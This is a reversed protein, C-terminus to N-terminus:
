QCVGGSGANYIAQVQASTLAANYVAVDNILGTFPRNNNVQQGIALWDSSPYSITGNWPASWVLVVPQAVGNFYINPAGNADRTATILTWQNLPVQTTTDAEHWASGDGIQFTIHGVPIGASSNPNVRGDFFIATGGYVGDEQSGVIMGLAGSGYDTPLITPYIWAQLTIHNQIQLNTPVPQGILVYQDSGNLSFADGVEGLAYTVGNELTGNYGNPGVDNANDNGPWLSVLSAPQALCAPAGTVTASCSANTGGYQGNCSWAWSYNGGSLPETIASATGASCLNASPAASFSGGNASGCAGNVAATTGTTFTTEVGYQSEYNGAIDYLYWNNPWYVIDYITSEALPTTPTLTVVTVGGVTSIALTTPVTTQTNHTRLYIQSSTILVPNMLESFTVTLPANVAVGTANNAPTAATATPNTWDFSSGTTFSSTTTGSAPNGNLDTVGAWNFTYTTNLQLAWPLQVDAIFNGDEPYVAIPEASGGAPTFTVNAMSDSSVPKNFLLMLSTNNWPGGITNLPVNTAGSPPNAYVLSPGVAVPGNGTYFGASNNQQGNGTLDIAGNCYYIYQSNSFLPTTPTMTVAMLDSAWTYTVPINGSNVYSYIYTNSPTVSAPDMPESYLCTFSANTAVGSQWSSFDLTATPATYDPLAATTFSASASTFTNGGYDLLGSASVTIPSSPPLPNVPSFNAEVVNSSSYTYSWTGPIPNGGTTITVNTSNITTLDVPKSFVLRIYANTGVNVSGNPPGIKVTGPTTDPGTATTFYTTWCSSQAAVGNTGKVNANACFGYFTSANWFSGGTPAIRVVNTTGPALGVTFTPTSPGSNLYVNGSLTTANIPLSYEIDIEGNTPINGNETCCPPSVAIIQPSATAANVTPATYFYGSNGNFADGNVDLVSGSLFWQVTAGNPFQTTPTFQIEYGSAVAQVTGAFVAGNVTVTLQGPLTAADVQRNMYLTLLTDTPVGTANNGPAVSQVSGNGTAPNTGTTFTSTFTTALANGSPDTIGGAPLDITYAANTYLVGSNFTMTRNDASMSISGRDQLGQGAFLLANNSNNYVSYPNIAKNFTVSVPVDPRVNTAGNAPNVSLVTLPTGDPTDGTTTFNLLQIWCGGGNLEDGAVDYPGNCAGVYITANPPYPSSPTFTVANGNVAYTGALGYNSNWGNMVLLTSTNVTAPNLIHSFTLTIPSLNNTVNAGNVISTSTLTLGGTAAVTGTTFTTNSPTVVNGNADTFGSVNVTYTIGASLASTPTFILTQNNSQSVTGAVPTSGNLLQISNQTWSTPDIIASATVVVQANLPIGTAGNLPSITVTPGTTDTGGNTWFYITVGNGNNGDQDQFGCCAQFYYHTSPLLPVQPTMTVEQGNASETVTLPIWQGTDYLYMRFTSNNVTIPNLPKNFVLKPTVNTGVTANNPPDSNIATASTIDYNPGTTFTNTVTAVANGAPDKVGAVTMLYSTNPALPVAPILQLVTNGNGLNPSTTVTSGGTSLTVGSLTNPDIPGSFQAEIIANTGLGTAGNLPNFNIVTPASSASTFEAYFTIEIGSVQNGALDTGTNVYFYYERGAALPSSPVLYAVSQISNWFLTAPVRVGLLSDYIYIDGNNGTSFTTVDMSESFQITISSNVPISENSTVSTWVVTPATFDPGPGTTFSSSFNIPNGVLDLVGNLTMVLSTNAPLPANPVFEVRTDNSNFWFGGALPTGGNTVQFTNSNVSVPDITKSIVVGPTVNVGVGSAGSYPVASTVTPLTADAATGTYFYTVWTTNAFPVSTSSQLGTTLYVYIYHNAGFNASPVIRVENSQPMTYTGAVHLGTSSDYLYINTSNVTSANLPTNFQLDVFTNLAVTAGYAPSAVQVAPTLTSTSAAVYFYGSTTNVTANYYTDTLSGTTWWQILAGPTWPSSPTFELTYGNDLLNVTGPMAVNNQAVEIGSSAGSVNLPLNFYLVIPLNANVGSAGNTPRVSTESGHTNYDYYTTTFQSTYPTLGDGNWDQLGSGLMATLTASSPLVGCNFSISTGDQSHSYSGGSCWPSQGDGNFLAYDNSNISGFNLSRNFTATVPARLGVNAAGNAPTFAMVQFPVSVPTATSATNFYTLQTYCGNYAANDGALDYPGNCAGVWIQTNIPFPSDPTFVVQNGTVVYNGAIEQNSNWGIMVPLTNSNVTAPDLPNNFTLTITSNTAVGGASYSPTAGTVVLNATQGMVSTASTLSAGCTEVVGQLRLGELNNDTNGFAFTLYNTGTSVYSTIEINLPALQNGTYGQDGMIAQGNVALLGNDDHSMAGVLCVHAPLPSSLNFSTSYFGYSNGSTSNPNIAIWSSSPGNADWGGYWDAAGSAVVKLAGTYADSAADGPYKFNSEGSTGATAVYSWHADATNSTTILNGSADLGTSVNLPAISTITTFTSSFASGVNGIVDQYGSLQVTYVTAPALVNTPAFFLTVLDSALTVTGAIPSGGSPTVTIINSVADPDIPSTFTVIVQANLPVSAASNAPSVSAVSPAVLDAGNGTTFYTNMGNLYAGNGYMVSGDADYYGSAMYLRYYTDPLLQVSPTFTASLGNPAVTVTGNIYKGSDSNYLQLTSTNINIPNVSKSFWVQPAVNTGVNTLGSVIDSSTNNTATDSGSGTTFTFSGPTVANGATDALPAGWSVTYTTNAALPATPTFYLLNGPGWGPPNTGYPNSNWMFTGAVPNGGTTVTVGTDTGQNMDTSFELEIPVNTGVTSLAPPNFFTVTPATTNASFVTNFYEGYTNISNHAATADTIGNTLYLYYQSNVALLSNPTITLVRGTADASIGIPITIWGQGQNSTLRLTINSNTFTAINMPQSFVVFFNSNIPIGGANMGPSISLISPPPIVVAQVTFGGAVNQSSGGTTVTVGAPGLPAGSAINVNVTISTATATVVPGPLGPGAAGAVTIGDAPTGITVTSASSWNTYQGTITVSLNTQAPNGFNPSIQTIVPTGATVSFVGSLQVNQSNTNVQITRGGVAANSAVTINATLQTFSSVTIFNVTIGSGFSVTTFAQQFNTFTGTIVINATTGAQATSPLATLLAPVGALVSFGGTMTAVEAGTTITPSYSGITATNSITISAVASTSSSVTLSNVTIGSGFTAVSTGQVWHTFLGTLTVSLNTAGQNGTPPSVASIQPSGSTVTFGGLITAVEGGTTLVVNYAGTPTSNPITIGVTASLLGTVTVSTVEIGGGFYATTVGQAWHTQSGTVLVNYSHGQGGSAPSLAGVIEAPGQVVRYGNALSVVQAGTTVTVNRYGLATTPSVTINAQAQTASTVTVSNVTIGTGFNATTTGNVFNTFAGTLTVPSSTLGQAGSNPVVALLEPEDQTVTFVNTGTAIEGGTTATVNYQGAPATTDVTINATISTPSNVVFSNILVDPFTLLTTGQVWHTNTGNIQVAPLNVGQGGANPTVSNIVAPGPSIYVANNLGLQQTGTTVTLNYYGVPATPLVYGDVTLSTPGTVNVNTLTIWPGYSVVPPTAASWTTAQSLITFVASGQQPESGPGSSLLYPTGATVVFGNTITADEGGTHASAGTPGEGAYAPIALTLTADTASNVTVSTVVIGDGFQFTTSGNWHTNQGTVEVTPTTGQPSTNPTIAAILALSPTVSFGAGGVVQAIPAADPTSAVVSVGGLSALQAINITQTAITPGLITPPGVTTIGSNPGGFSFTTTSDFTTYQGLIDVTLNTAGQIGSGPDVITLVPQAIVVSFQANEVEGSPYMSTAPTTLTLDSTSASANGAITINAIATTPSLVQFCNVTVSANFGTLTTGTQGCAPGTGPQWDTYAGNFTITLTQGPLASGPSLYWIYPTPPPAPATVLFNGTLGQTGTQVVVTRYGDQANAAINIVAEIHTANDVQFSEVTIGPGFNVTSSGTAWNTYIGYIDVELGTTPSAPNNQNSSPSLYAIVPVGGTVVFAGSDTLSEGNTVMYISRAGPNATPSISMDVTASTASNIVVSNITLDYGGGAIYFQTFNQAWHTASGTINFVVEQGENGTNPAVNSIIAPGPIITFVNASVIESGTGTTAGGPCANNTNALISCAVGPTTVTVLRGGTYALPDITISADVETASIYQVSHVTIGTGFTATSLSSFHSYQGILRVVCYPLTSCTPSTIIPAGQEAQNPIAENLTAVGPSVTFAYQQTAVEGLTTVTVTHYGTFASTSIAVPVTLSTPTSVTVTGVSIGGDGFSVQTEGNVFDTASGVITLSETSGQVGANPTVSTIEEAGQSVCFNNLTPPDTFVQENGTTVTIVHGCPSGYDVYALPSVNVGVTMNESDIVNISNPVISLDPNNFTVQTVGQTWHTFRGLIQLTLGTGQEAGGPSIALLIPSGEEIDIAQQLSVVEGDTSTTLTSFGVAAVSLVTIQAQATTPSTITLQDTVVGYGFNMTTEGQLWHTGVGVINLTVTQLQAVVPVGTPSSGPSCNFGAINITNANPCTFNPEVSQIYAASPTVSFSSGSVIQSGTYMVVTNGGVPATPSIAITATATTPSTITLNSISVGAGLIAETVGPQWDTLNGTIVVNSLTAGQAGSSPSVSVLSPTAPYDVLFGAMVQEAGTNVYISQWGSPSPTLVGGLMYSTTINATLHTNDTVTVSNVTIQPGFLVQTTGSTFHTNLGLIAVDVTTSPPTHDPNVSIIGVPTSTVNFYTTVIQGGTTLTVLRPGTATPTGNTAAIITLTASANVPSLVQFNSLTVGEGAIVPLTTPGWSTFQGTFNVTFSNVAPATPLLGNAPSMTLTPTNAYVCISSSVVQGGTAMYFGYNGVPSTTPVAIALSASTPSNITVEDVSPTPVGAPYFSATTTGQVWNTNVSTVGLTVQGGQPVCNPAVSTISASSPTVTFTFPFNTAGNILTATISGVNAAQSISINVTVSSPSTPTVSNVTIEGTFNASLSGTTFTTYANGTIVVNLNTQGQRGSSPAVSILAPTAGAITIANSLTAIEGGTSVTANQFGITAGAPVALQAIATTLSTVTVDGVIVGGGISLVTANQLFHTGSATLYVQGSWGQPVVTPTVPTLTPSISLLAANNPGIQFIPNDQATLVSVAFEGNTQMTVTRYGIPTTNSITINAVADTADLITLSNMSVGDGFNAITVGQVFHTGTAAIDVNLTQGQSGFAPTVSTITHALTPDALNFASILSATETGGGTLPTKVTINCAGYIGGSLTLTANITNHTPATVASVAINCPTSTSDTEVFTIASSASFHTWGNGTIVVPVVTGSAGAGPSVVSVAAPPNTATASGTLSAVLTTGGPASDTVTLTGTRTTSPTVSTPTFNVYILCSSKAAIVGTACNTNAQYDAAALSGVAAFSFTESQSEHNTLTITKTPSVTGVTQSAFSLYAPSITLPSTGTGTVNLVQPSTLASDYVQLQGDRVGGISPDFEVSVTCSATTGAGGIGAGGIPCTTASEIFDGTLKINSFVLATTLQENTITYTRYASTTGVPATYTKTANPSIYVPPNGNGSLSVTQPSTSANDTVSLTATRSGSATPTFTVNLQCTNAAPPAPLTNPATPCSSTVGFDSPDTGTINVSAINLAVNQENTLTVTVPASTLGVFITGFNLSTRSLVVPAIANATLNVTQPSSAASDVVSFSAAPQVGLTPPTLDIGIVCSMGAALATITSCTTQTADLSYGGSFGSISTITLPTTQNNVLTVNKETKQGVVVNGFARTSPLTVDVVGSGTLTVTQPSSAASDTVTVVAAPAAGTTTPAFTVGFTCSTTAAVSGGVVCATGSTPAVIAYPAAATIATLNLAITQNNTLTVNKTASTTGKVVNGFALTAPSLTVALVGTGSLTAFQPSNSASDLVTIQGGSTAGTVAPVFDIGVYCSAGAALSGSLAGGSVACTTAPSTDLVFPGNFVDGSFTLASAQNNTVKIQKAASTTGVVGGGFYITAPSLVVPAIGKASLPVTNPSNSANTNITLTGAPQTGVSAPTVTLVVTCTGGNAAVTPTLCTSSPNIAYPTGSTVALSSVTLSSAQNNTLTVTELSSTAGVVVNGFNVSTPSVTAPAIGMGTLPVTNPSNSANTTITLLGGSLAGTAAPTWTLSITCNAGAALSTGCATPAGPNVTIGASPTISSITLATSQYNYLTVTKALSPEGEVVNGFSVSTPSVVTANVGTGNLTATLPSNSANTTVTLTGAPAAGLTAPTLSVLINCQSYGAALTTGCTTSSISYPAAVTISSITLPTLQYNILYVTKPTSTTGVVVNGFSVASTSLATVTVGKGSLPVTLPSNPANTTVTLTGAPAAGLATPTLSVLIKCQGGAALTSGCTTSNVSYPAPATISSITLPSLQYNYLVETWVTSDTGVVVDGFNISAISLATANVGTGSLTVTTTPNSATTSITLTDAPQTGLAIPSLTLGIACSAGAALAGPNACTTSPSGAIAYPGGATVTLSNITIAATGTNKLTVTKPASTTNVVVNGFNEATASVTTQAVAFATSFLCFMAMLSM